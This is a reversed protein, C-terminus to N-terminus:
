KGGNGYLVEYGVAPYDTMVADAGNEKLEKIQEAENITWYQAAIGYSHAYDIIEKTGFNYFAAKYPLQLVGYKVEGLGAGYLFSFYFHLAEIISASRTVEESYKEDIYATIDANFTGVITRDTIDYEQMKEYLKDMAKKGPNGEDKIEIIYNMEGDTRVRNEVYDLIEDLTLIRVDGPVDDGRLGKYPTTGDPAVFNEGMNLRKIEELTYDKVFADTKGFTECADSTRDLTDDHLLVLEGDKTIHLDFELIDVAYEENEMCLRFAALTEEPAEGGGARHASLKTTEEIYPSKEIADGSYGKREATATLPLIVLNLLIVAVLLGIIGFVVIKKTVSWPKRTRKKGVKIVEKERQYSFRFPM